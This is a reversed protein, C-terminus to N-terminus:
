GPLSRRTRLPQPLLQACWGKGSPVSSRTAERSKAAWNYINHSALSRLDPGWARDTSEARADKPARPEQAKRLSGGGGGRCFTGGSLQLERKLATGPAACGQLAAGPIRHGASFGSRSRQRGWSPRSATALLVALRAKAASPADGEKRSSGERRPQAWEGMGENM